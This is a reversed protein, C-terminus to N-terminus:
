LHDFSFSGMIFYHTGNVIIACAFIILHILVMATYEDLIMYNKPLVKTLWSVSINHLLSRFAQSDDLRGYHLTLYLFIFESVYALGNSFYFNMCYYDCASHTVLCPGSLMFLEKMIRRRTPTKSWTWWRCYIKHFFERLWREHIERFLDGMVWVLWICFIGFLISLTTM